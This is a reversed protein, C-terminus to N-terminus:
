PLRRAIASGIELGVLGLMASGVWYFLGYGYSGQRLLTSTDLAYTSFTTYSGLFGTAILLRLDPAVIAREVALTTFLGMIVAGTINIAFTGYPFSPGLWKAFLITLYYRSLAGPIAGLSIAIPARINPDISTLTGLVQGCCSSLFHL